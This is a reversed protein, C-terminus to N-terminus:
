AGNADKGADSPAPLAKWRGAELAKANQGDPSGPPAITKIAGGSLGVDIITIASEGETHEGWDNPLQRAAIQLTRHVRKDQANALATGVDVTRQNARDVAQVREFPKLGKLRSLKKAQLLMGKLDETEKGWEAAIPLLQRAQDDIYSRYRSKFEESFEPDERMWTYITTYHPMRKFTSIKTPSYGMEAYKLVRKVMAPQHAAHGRRGLREAIDNEKELDPMGASEVSRNANNRMAKADRAGAKGTSKSQKVEGSDKVVGDSM